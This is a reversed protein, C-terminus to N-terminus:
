KLEKCIRSMIGKDSTDIVFIKEWKIHETKVQITEKATCTSKLNVM